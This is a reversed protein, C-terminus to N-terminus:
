KPNWKMKMYVNGKKLEAMMQDLRKKKTAPLKARKIWGIYDNQQYAPRLKYKSMLKNGTLAKRVNAPMPYHPREIKTWDKKAM